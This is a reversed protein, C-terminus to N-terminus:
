GHVSLLSTSILFNTTNLIRGTNWMTPYFDEEKPKVV